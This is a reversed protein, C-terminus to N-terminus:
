ATIMESMIVGDKEDKKIGEKQFIWRRLIETDKIRNKMSKCNLVVIM